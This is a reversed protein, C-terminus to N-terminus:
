PSREDDSSQSINCLLISHLLLQQLIYYHMVTQQVYDKLQTWYIIFSKWQEALLKTKNIISDLTMIVFSNTWRKLYEVFDLCSGLYLSETIKKIIRYTFLRHIFTVDSTKQKSVM